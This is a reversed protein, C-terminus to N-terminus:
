KARVADVAIRCEENDIPRKHVRCAVVYVRLKFWDRNSASTKFFIGNVSVPVPKHWLKWVIKWKSSWQKCISGQSNSNQFLSFAIQISEM